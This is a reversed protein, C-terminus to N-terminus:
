GSAASVAAPEDDMWRVEGAAARGGFREAMVQSRFRFLRAVDGRVCWRMALPALM